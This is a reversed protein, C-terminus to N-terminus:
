HRRGLDSATPMVSRRLVAGAEWRDVVRGCPPECARDSLTRVERPGRMAATRDATASSSPRTPAPVPAALADMSAPRDKVTRWATGDTRTVTTWRTALTADARTPTRPRPTRGVPDPCMTTVTRTTTVEVARALAVSLSPTTVEVSTREVRTVLDATRLMTIARECLAAVRAALRADQIAARARASSAAVTEARSVASAAARSAKPRRWRGDGDGLGVAGLAVGDAPDGEPVGVSGVVGPEPGVVGAGLPVALVDVGAGDVGIAPGDVLAGVATGGVGVGVVGLGVVGLGVVGLGVVALGVGVVGLGIGVWVAPAIGTPL